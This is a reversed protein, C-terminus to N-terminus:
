VSPSARFTLIVWTGLLLFGAGLVYLGQVARRRLPPPLFDDALTRLGNMGHVMALWLMLLDYGRWFPGLYRQVVFDYDIVHISNFVHMLFLHGLALGLLLVGSIRMFLWAYLEAGGSPRPHAGYSSSM